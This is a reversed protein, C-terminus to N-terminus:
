FTPHPQASFRCFARLIPPSSLLRSKESTFQVCWGDGHGCHPMATCSFPDPAHTLRWPLLAIALDIPSCAAAVFLVGTSEQLGELSHTDRINGAPMDRIWYCLIHACARELGSRPVLLRGDFTWILSPATHSLHFSNSSYATSQTAFVGFSSM